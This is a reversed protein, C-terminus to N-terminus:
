NMKKWLASATRLLQPDSAYLRTYREVVRKQQESGGLMAILSLKDLTFQRTKDNDLSQWLHNVIQKRDKEAEKGIAGLVLIAEQKVTNNPHNLASRLYPLYGKSNRFWYWAPGIKGLSSHLLLEERTNDLPLWEGLWKRKEYLEIMEIPTLLEQKTKYRSARLALMAHATSDPLSAIERLREQSQGFQDAKRKSIRIPITTCDPAENHKEFYDQIFHWYAIQSRPDYVIVIVPLRYSLWYRVHKTEARFTFDTDSESKMYKKSGSKVQVAILGIPAGNVVVELYGDIGLDTNGLERWIFGMRSSVLGLYHIGERETFVTDPVVPFKNTM